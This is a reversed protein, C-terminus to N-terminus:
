RLRHPRQNQTDMATTLLELSCIDPTGRWNARAVATSMTSASQQGIATDNAAAMSAGACCAQQMRLACAQWECSPEPSEKWATQWAQPHHWATGLARAWVAADGIVNEKEM